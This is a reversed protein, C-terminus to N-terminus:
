APQLAIMGKTEFKQILVVPWDLITTVVCGAARDSYNFLFHLPARGQAGWAKSTQRGLPLATGVSTNTTMIIFVRLSAGVILPSSIYVGM